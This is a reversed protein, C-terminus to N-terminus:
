LIAPPAVLPCTKHVSADLVESPPCLRGEPTQPNRNPSTVMRWLVSGLAANLGLLQQLDMECPPISVFAKNESLPTITAM